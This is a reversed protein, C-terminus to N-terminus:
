CQTPLSCWAGSSLAVELVRALVILATAGGARLRRERWVLPLALLGWVLALVPAQVYLGPMESQPPVYRLPDFIAGFTNFRWTDAYPIIIGSINTDHAYSLDPLLYWGNLGVGLAILGAVALVRRWPLERSRGSALWYGALAVIALTSGWLLTINHSGSFVATAAVLCAIPGLSMRGRVLRLSAALVLPLMSVAMFEVWAGKGYLTTVYYASTVFVIAPAHALLGKVGLQRALWFLGGYAAGMAGVT